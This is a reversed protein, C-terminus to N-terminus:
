LTASSKGPTIQVRRPAQQVPDVTPDLCIHHEGELKGVGDTLVTPFKMELMSKTLPKTLPKTPRNM